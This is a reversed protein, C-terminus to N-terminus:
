VRKRLKFELDRLWNFCQLELWLKTWALPLQKCNNGGKFIYRKSTTRVWRGKSRHLHYHVSYFSLISWLSLFFDLSCGKSVTFLNEYYLDIYTWQGWFVLVSEATHFLWWHNDCLCPLTHMLDYLDKTAELIWLICLIQRDAKIEANTWLPNSLLGMQFFLSTSWTYYCLQRQFTEPLSQKIRKVTM